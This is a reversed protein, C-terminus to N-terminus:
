RCVASRLSVLTEAKAFLAGERQRKSFYELLCSKERENIRIKSTIEFISASTTFFLSALKM